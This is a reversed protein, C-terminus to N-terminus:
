AINNTIFIRPLIEDLKENNFLEYYNYYMVNKDFWNKDYYNYLKVENENNLKNKQFKKYSNIFCPPIFLILEINRLIEMNYKSIIEKIKKYYRM